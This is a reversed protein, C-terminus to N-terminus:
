LSIQLANHLTLTYIETNATDNFIFRVQASKGRGIIGLKISM